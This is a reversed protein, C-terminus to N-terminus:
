DPNEVRRVRLRMGERSLVEATDGVALVDSSLAQWLEGNFFVMAPKGPDEGASRVEALQGILSEAGAVPQPRMAKVSPALMWRFIALSSVALAVVLWAALAPLDSVMVLGGFVQFVVSLLALALASLPLGALWGARGESVVFERLIALGYLLLSLGFLGLGFL